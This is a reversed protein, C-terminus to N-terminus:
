LIKGFSTLNENLPYCKEGWKLHVTDTLIGLDEPGQGGKENGPDYEAEVLSIGLGCPRSTPINVGAGVHEERQTQGLGHAVRFM